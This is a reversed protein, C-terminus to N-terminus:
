SWYSQIRRRKLKSLLVFQSTHRHFLIGIAYTPFLSMDLISDCMALNRRHLFYQTTDKELLVKYAHGISYYNEIPPYLEELM